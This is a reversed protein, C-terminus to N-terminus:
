VQEGLERSVANRLDAVVAADVDGVVVARQATDLRHVVVGLLLLHNSLQHASVRIAEVTGPLNGVDNTRLVRQDNRPEVTRRHEIVAPSAAVIRKSSATPGVDNMHTGSTARPRANPAIDNVIVSEPRTNELSSASRAMSSARRVATAM